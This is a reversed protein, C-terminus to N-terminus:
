GNVAALAASRIEEIRDTACIDDIPLSGHGDIALDWIDFPLVDIHDLERATIEEVIEDVRTEIAEIVLKRIYSQRIYEYTPKIWKRLGNALVERMKEPSYADLELGLPEGDIGGGDEMWEEMGKAKPTYANAEIEELTLQEPFIGLREAWVYKIGLRTRYYMAQKRFTEAIKWGSPDHDTISLFIVRVRKDKPIERLMPEMASLANLGGGSIWSCGTLTAVRRLIPIATDKETCLIVNPFEGKSVQYGYVDLDPRGYMTEAMARARSTDEIRLDRYTLLGDKVLGALYRSLEGDWQTLIDETLSSLRGLKSLVPKVTAYWFGRLSRDTNVSIFEKENLAITRIIESNAAGDLVARLEDAPIDKIPRDFTYHKKTRM